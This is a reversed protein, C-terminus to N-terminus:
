RRKLVVFGSKKYPSVDTYKSEMKLIYYYTGEPLDAGKTTKGDWFSWTQNNKNTSFFVESGASNVISLEVEQNDTDLGKIEFLDNLGDHNPSFGEPIKIPVVTVSVSDKSICPGNTLTWRYINLNDELARVKALPLSDPEFIGAGSIVTWLGKEYIFKDAAKLQYYKDFSYLVTDAGADIKSSPRTFISVEIPDSVNSCCDGTGSTVKRKYKTPVSLATPQYNGSPDNNVGAAPTWSTGGDISQEWFYRFNGDGGAPTSGTLLEPVYDKCIVKPDNLTNNSILPLVTVKVTAASIDTCAGSIVKRRFYTTVNLAPPDYTQSTGSAAVANWNSNDTSSQWEYAYDGPLNTGGSPLAGLLRNPNAGDCITTDTSGSTTDTLVPPQYDRQNAGTIDTWVPRAKSSDQWIYTYTGNGNLPDSGTLLVPASGSCVKQEATVITNNTIVPYDRLLIVQSTNVCVDNMGSIVVRRFKYENLPAREPLESPLYGSQNNTGPAPGWAVGNISSEWLFKYTADGGSLAPTTTTTTATLDTFTSGFCIDQPTNFINNNSITDLVNIRVIASSDVCRGSTVTRKYWSTLKLAPEPTYSETSDNNAPKTFLSNDTSVKWRFNYIGNGDLLTARSILAKPNQAYCVTDPDGITNGKIFPQVIIKVPKSIDVIVPPGADTVVRRFWTTQTLLGPTYDKGTAGSIDTFGASESTTSSQWQIIGSFPITGSIVGFSMNSCISDVQNGTVVSRISNYLFGNLTPSYTNLSDGPSGNSGSPGPSNGKDGGTFIKSVGAPKSINNTLILGGGGGGGEGYNNSTNGGKGGKVSLTLGSTIGSSYSQLYLAISGGGGGGGAGANGTVSLPTTPTGGDATIIKGNGKLTDCIIFVIGGGNAGPSSPAGDSEHTSGGGGGGMFLNNAFDLDIDLSKVKKGQLGGSLVLCGDRGGRGGDGWNSGGGGGSYKGNGGGGGSLNAGKGKSYAPFLPPYNPDVYGRNAVSEGKNGANVFTNNYSYDNMGLDTACAGTGLSVTGGKFGKASVDIDADLSLTRGVILALVGGTKSVSDWPQCTLTSTITASNYYPVRILQVRGLVNYNNLINNKFTVVSGVISEIILFENVGPAGFYGAQTSYSPDNNVIINAGKMQILLVTDGPNLGSVDSLTVNDHPTSGIAEVYKYLNIINSIKKDQSLLITDLGVVMLLILLLSNINIGSKITM